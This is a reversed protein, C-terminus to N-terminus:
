FFLSFSLIRASFFLFVVKYLTELFRRQLPNLHPKAQNGCCPLSWMPLLIWWSKILRFPGSSWPFVFVSTHFMQRENGRRGTSNFWNGLAAIVFDRLTPPEFCYDNIRKCNWLGSTWLWRVLLAMNGRLARPSFKEKGRELKQPESASRATGPQSVCWKLRPRKWGMTNM